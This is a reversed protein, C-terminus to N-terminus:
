RTVWWALAFLLISLVVAASAGTAVIANDPLRKGGLRIFPMTKPMIEFWTWAHYFFAALVVCHFLISGPTALSARWADFAAQGQALRYLGFLLILAYVTVLISSFERIMYVTYFPNRRWWGAMPRRYTKPKGM